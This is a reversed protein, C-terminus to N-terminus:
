LEVRLASLNEKVLNSLQGTTMPSIDSVPSGPQLHKIANHANQWYGRARVINGRQAAINGLTFSALPHNRQCYLAARLAQRADDTSNAELHLMARLYHADALLPDIYLAADIEAQARNLDGRNAFVCALLTHAAAHGPEQRLLHYILQEAETYAERQLHSVANEYINAHGPPEIQVAPIEQTLTRETYGTSRRPPTQAPKRYLPLGPFINTEWRRDANPLAEAHSLLLWGASKLANHLVDAAIQMHKMGFYLLVNRCLILDFTFPPVSDFLNMQRFRVLRAIEPRIQLGEPTADFYQNQFDLDTHRFAWKRYLGRRATQLSRDNIDTGIITLTWRDLDPILERLTIALSYAEEGTACGVSWINLTRSKANAELLDPLLQTRLLHFHVKDRLFYTEGITLTDILAQWHDHKVPTAELTKLYADLDGTALTLLTDALAGRLQTHAAIGTRQEILAGIKELAPHINRM